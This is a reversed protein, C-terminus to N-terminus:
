IRLSSTTKETCDKYTEDKEELSKTKKEEKETETRTKSDIRGSKKIKTLWMPYLHSFGIKQLENYFRDTKEFEQQYVCFQPDWHERESAHIIEEKDPSIRLSYPQGDEGKGKLTGEYYHGLVFLKAVIDNYWPTRGHLEVHVTKKNQSLSIKFDEWDKTLEEPPQQIIKLRGKVDVSYTM